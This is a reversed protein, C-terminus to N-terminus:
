TTCHIATYVFDCAADAFRYGVGGYDLPPRWVALEVRPANRNSRGHGCIEGAIQEKFDHGVVRDANPGAFLQRWDRRIGIFWSSCCRACGTAQVRNLDAMVYGDGAGMVFGSHQCPQADMVEDFEFSMMRITGLRRMSIMTEAAHEFSCPIAMLFMVEFTMVSARTVKSPNLDTPPTRSGPM